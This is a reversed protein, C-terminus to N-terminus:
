EGVAIKECKGDVVNHHILVIDQRGAPLDIEGTLETVVEELETKPKLGASPSALQLPVEKEEVKSPVLKGVTKGGLRVEFEIPRRVSPVRKERLALLDEWQAQWCPKRDSYRFVGSATIKTKGPSAVEAILLIAESFRLDPMLSPATATEVYGDGVRYQLVWQKPLFVGPVPYAPHVTPVPHKVEEAPLPKEDPFAIAFPQPASRLALGKATLGTLPAAAPKGGIHFQRWLTAKTETIGPTIRDPPLKALALAGATLGDLDAAQIVVTTKRPAFAWPVAQVVARGKGPYTTTVQPWLMGAKSLSDVMPDVSVPAGAKGPKRAAGPAAPRSEAVLDLLLLAKGCRWGGLASAWDNGNVTERKIKGFTEGREALINEDKQADSPDYAITYTSTAPNQRIEVQVGREALTSKAQEAVAMLTPDFLPLVFEAGKVFAAELAERQRTVVTETLAVALPAPAANGIEVPLTALQGTLQSRIEVSWAGAADNRATPVAMSFTGDKTTSRYFEAHVTGDFRRVTLHFPLVGQLRRGEADHFGVAVALDNGAEVSQTASLAIHRIERPLAAFVRATTQSLDCAFPKLMGLPKEETCDYLYDPQAAHGGAVPLPSLTERVQHWDAQTAVWSDNVAVVYRADRGGDIQLLSVKSDVGKESALWAHGTTGLAASFAKALRPHIRDLLIADNENGVMNPTLWNHPKGPPSFQMTLALKEAGPINAETSADVFIRGGKEKFTALGARVPEPLAFTQGLVVLAEVDGARGSAIEDETVFRPTYGLRTLTVLHDFTARGFGMPVHQRGYQTKSWLIGVGHAGRGELALAAFRDLFDRGAVLDAEGAKGKMGDWNTQKNMGGLVNSFGEHAFGNGTVGFALGHAAVRTFKGPIGARHHAAALANSIWTPKGGREMELLADVLLWQYAYDPGGVQDNWTSQYQFDLPAYASPFYQGMRVAAHDSQVSSSNRLQPDVERLNRTLTGYVEQYLGMLYASWADLRKEFAAREAEPMPQSHRSIEEVWRKTPLDIAPAQDARGTSVLYTLYEAESVPQLGTKRTFADMKQQDTREIYNRLAQTKDGWGWYTMLMKRGGVAFGTTDWGYCFGGFNPYRGNAQATLIMRQSMGDLEEPHNVPPLFSTPRTEPNALMLVGARALTDLVPKRGMDSAALSLCASIGSEQLVRLTEDGTQKDPPIVEDQLSGASKRHTRTLTFREVAKTGNLELAYDGPALKATNLWLAGAPGSYLLTRDGARVAELTCDGGGSLALPVTEGIFYASRELPLVVLTSPSVGQVSPQPSQALVTAAVGLSAILFAPSNHVPSKLKM